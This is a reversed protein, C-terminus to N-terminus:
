QEDTLILYIDGTISSIDFPVGLNENHIFRTSGMEIREEKIDWKLGSISLVCDNWAPLLSIINKQTQVKKKEGDRILLVEDRGIFLKSSMTSPISSLMQISSIVHDIRGTKGGRIVIGDKELSIALEIAIKGDSLDKDFPYKKVVTGHRVASMVDEDSLSDMDGVLYHPYIGEDKLPLLGSDACIIIDDDEIDFPPEAGSLFIVCRKEKSSM